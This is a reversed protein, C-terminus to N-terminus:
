LIFCPLEQLIENYVSRQRALAFILNMRQTLSSIIIIIIALGESIGRSRFSHSSLFHRFNGSLATVLLVYRAVARRLTMSIDMTAWRTIDAAQQQGLVHRCSVLGWICWVGGVRGYLYIGSPPFNEEFLKTTELQANLSIKITDNHFFNGDVRFMTTIQIM